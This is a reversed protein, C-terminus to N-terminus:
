LCGLFYICVLCVCTTEKGARLTGGFFLLILFLMLFWLVFYFIVSFVGFNLPGFDIVFIGLTTHATYLPRRQQVLESFSWAKGLLVPQPQLNEAAAQAFELIHKARRLLFLM